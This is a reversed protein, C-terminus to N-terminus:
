NKLSKNSPTLRLPNIHRMIRSLNAKLTQLLLHYHNGMLCYAHIICEFRTSAEELTKLFAEYYTDNHFIIERARGRNMVHYFANEYEIRLPRPM